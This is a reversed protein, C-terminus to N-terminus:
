DTSSTSEAPVNKVEFVGNLVMALRLGAEVLRRKIVTRAARAYPGELEPLPRWRSVDHPPGLRSYCVRRALLHSEVMWDYPRGSMIKAREGPTIEAELLVAGVAPSEGEGRYLHIDWCKHLNTVSGRWTVAVDNGGRDEGMGCHLPQHLDGMFHVLFKLAEERKIARVAPDKLLAIQKEIAWVVNGEPTNMIDYEPEDLELPYNIYHWPATWHRLPRVEDAWNAAAALRGGPGLINKIEARAAPTLNEEAIEAILEHHWGGWAAARSPLSLFLALLIIAM